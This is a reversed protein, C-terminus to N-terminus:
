QTLNYGRRVEALPEAFRDELREAPLFPARAGMAFGSRWAARLAGLAFGTRLPYILWAIAAQLGVWRHTRQAAAFALVGLEGPWSTDFGLLVHIMDHTVAYRLAFTSRDLVEAPVRATPVFPSLRHRRLFDVYARGFTGDPLRSLADLDVIPRYGAVRALAARHPPSADLGLLSQKLLAVDAVHANVDERTLAAILRLTQAHTM